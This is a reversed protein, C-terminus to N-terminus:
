SEDQPFNTFEFYKMFDNDDDVYTIHAVIEQDKLWERFLAEKGVTMQGPADDISEYEEIEEETRTTYVWQHWTLVSKGFKAIYIIKKDDM